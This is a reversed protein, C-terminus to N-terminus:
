LVNPKARLQMSIAEFVGFWCLLAVSVVTCLCDVWFTIRCTYLIWAAFVLWCSM